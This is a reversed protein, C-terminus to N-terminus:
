SRSEGPTTHDILQYLREKEGESNQDGQAAADAVKARSEEQRDGECGRDPATEALFFLVDLNICFLLFLCSHM